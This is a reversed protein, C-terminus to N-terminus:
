LSDSKIFYNYFISYSILLAIIWLDFFSNFFVLRFFGEEKQVADLVKAPLSINKFYYIKFTTGNKATNILPMFNSLQNVIESYYSGIDPDSGYDVSYSYDLSDVYKHNNVKYSYIIKKTSLLGNEVIYEDLKQYDIDGNSDLFENSKSIEFFPNNIITATTVDKRLALNMRKWDIFNDRWEISLLIIVPLLSYIWYKINIYKSKM